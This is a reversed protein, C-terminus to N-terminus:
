RFCMSEYALEHMLWLYVDEILSRPLVGLLWLRVHLHFPMLQNDGSAQLFIVSSIGYKSCVNGTPKYVITPLAEDVSVVLIVKHRMEIAEELPRLSNEKQFNFTYIYM